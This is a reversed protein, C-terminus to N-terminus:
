PAPARQPSADPASSAGMREVLMRAEDRRYGGYDGRAFPALAEEAEVLRRLRVLTLARNYRAELALEGRPAAALYRDWLVLTTGPDRGEFHATHAAEYLAGVDVGRSSGRPSTAEAAPKSTAAPGPTDPLPEVSPSEPPAMQAPPEVPRVPSPDVATGEHGTNVVPRTGDVHAGRLAAAVVRRATPSGAAWAAFPFSAALLLAGIARKRGRTRQRRALELALRSAGDSSRSSRVPPEDGADRLAKTARALLDDPDSM